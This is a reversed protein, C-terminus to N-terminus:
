VANVAEVIGGDTCAATARAAFYGTRRASRCFADPSYKAWFSLHSAASTDAPAAEANVSPVAAQTISAFLHPM